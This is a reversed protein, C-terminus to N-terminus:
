GKDTNSNSTSALYKGSEWHLVAKVLRGPRVVVGRHQTQIQQMKSHLVLAVVESTFTDTSVAPGGCHRAAKGTGEAGERRVSM